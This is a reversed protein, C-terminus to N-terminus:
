YKLRGVEYHRIETLLSLIKSSYLEIKVNASTLM